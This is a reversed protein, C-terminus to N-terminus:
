NEFIEQILRFIIVLLKQCKGTNLLGVKIIGTFGEKFSEPLSFGEKTIRKVTYAIVQHKINEDKLIVYFIKLFYLSIKGEIGDITNKLKQSDDLTLQGGKLNLLINKISEKLKEKNGLYLGKCQKLATEFIEDINDECRSNGVGSCQEEYLCKEKALSM